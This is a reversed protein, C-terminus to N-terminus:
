IGTIHVGGTHPPKFGIIQCSLCVSLFSLLSAKQVTWTCNEPEPQMQTCVHNHTNHNWDVAVRLLLLSPKVQEKSM